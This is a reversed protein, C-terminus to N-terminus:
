QPLIVKLRRKIAIFSLVAAIIFGALLFFPSSGLKKDLYAGGFGFGVAPLAILYGLTWALRLALWLSGIASPGNNKKNEEQM